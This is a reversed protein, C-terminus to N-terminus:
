NKVISIYKILSFDSALSYKYIKLETIMEMIYMIHISSFHIKKDKKLIFM